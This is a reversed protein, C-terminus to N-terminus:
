FNLVAKGKIVGQLSQGSYGLDKLNCEELVSRFQNLQSEPQRQGGWKEYDQLIENFDGFVIWPTEDSSCLSKLLNWVQGRKSVEPHGYVVTLCWNQNSNIKITAQYPTQFLQSDITGHGGEM